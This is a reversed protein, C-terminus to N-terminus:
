QTVVYTAEGVASEGPALAGLHPGTVWTLGDLADDITVDGLTLNGTNTATFTYTITDGLGVGAAPDASKTLLLGPEPDQTGVTVPPPSSSPPVLEGPPTGTGTAVNTVGGALVDAETVVYTAAGTASEGPA